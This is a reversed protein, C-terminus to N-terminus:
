PTLSQGLRAATATALQALGYYTSKTTTPTGNVSPVYLITGNGTDEGEAGILLDACGDGTVDTLSVASGFKDDTETSGAINPSDQSLALSGKGTLGASTAKLLWVSGANARNMGARTIDENPAGTLVDAYGDADVDGVSVSAGFADSSESAGEVDATGQHITTMGTTTFGTSTGPLMTVQGGASGGSESTYPQGIVIDDYGNGDVDGAAIARGGKVTLTAVKTLGLSRSGKFWVVKSVGSADRYNLAVDAYGDRNFDGSTADAYALSGTVTTIDGAVEHGDNFRAAWNGGTGTAATFVDARGDANFDGVAVTAGFRASNPNYDDGLAMTDAGATFSPGYLITVAGRDAHGTTDDEGPAGIALDAYGDGNIDGWATAAGWQDGSESAGPVGTSSQTLQVKSSSVPASVGGPVLTISGSSPKPTAAVLDATGDGNYDATPIASNRGPSAAYRRVEALDAYLNAGPSLTTTADKGGSIVDLTAQEDKAYTGTDESATLTVTGTPDGGYQGLKWAALRAVSELAARSPKATGEFDGLVAVGVSDDDFGPTHAGRVSVDTGGARGEYIRGCKDVVFNAGLDGLGGEVDYATLARILAPSDACSYSNTGGTHHVFVASIKDLYEPTGTVTSEDAGWRARSVIPPRTVTSALPTPATAPSDAPDTPPGDVTFAVNVPNEARNDTGSANPSRHETATVGPDVLDVKLGKPLGARSSGGAAMVRAEVGDSPGVWLPESAGRGAGPELTRWASWAGTGGSRTRVQATGDLATSAGTWSVGLLSFPETDTRALVRRNHGDGTLPLERVEAPRGARADFTGAGGEPSVVDYSVVGAGGVVVAGLTLWARRKM